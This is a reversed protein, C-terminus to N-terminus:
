KIISEDLYGKRHGLDLRALILNYETQINQIQSSILDSLSTSYTLYNNQGQRLDRETANYNEQEVKLLKETIEYQLQITKLAQELKVIAALADREEQSTESETKLTLFRESKVVSARQGWDWLNWRFVVGATLFTQDNDNWSGANQYYSDSGYGLKAVLDIKPRNEVKALGEESERVSLRLRKRAVEYLESASPIPPRVRYNEYVMPAERLSLFSKLDEKARVSDLQASTQSILSRQFQSEFRLYDQRTRMGQRYQSSILKYVKEVQLTNKNQLDEIALSKLVDFYLRATRLITSSKERQYDLQALTRRDKSAQFNLISVGHDYLNESLVLAAASDWEYQRTKPSAQNYSYDATLDLSPLFAARNQTVSLDARQLDYESQKITNSNQLALSVAEPLSLAQASSSAFIVVITLLKLM